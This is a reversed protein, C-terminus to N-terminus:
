WRERWWCKCCNIRSLAHSTRSTHKLLPEKLPPPLVYHQSLQHHQHLHQYHAVFCWFKLLSSIAHHRATSHPTLPSICNFTIIKIRYISCWMHRTVFTSSMYHTSFPSCTTIFRSTSNLITHGDGKNNHKHNKPHLQATSM